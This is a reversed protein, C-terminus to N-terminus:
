KPLYVFEGCGAQLPKGAALFRVIKNQIGMDILYDKFREIDEHNGPVYSAFDVNNPETLQITLEASDKLLDVLNKADDISDNFGKYILYNVRVESGTTAYFYKGAEVVERLTFANAIPMIQKRKLDSAAHLSLWLMRVPLKEDAFKRIRSPLGVSAFSLKREYRKDMFLIKLASVFNEYNDLPEGIGMFVIHDFVDVGMKSAVHEVQEVIENATLNRTFGNKGSVCMRCAFKCGAQTSVCAHVEQTAGRDIKFGAAEISNGDHLEIKTIFDAIPHFSTDEWRNTNGYNFRKESIEKM